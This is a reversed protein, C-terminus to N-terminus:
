DGAHIVCSVHPPDAYSGGSHIFAIQLGGVAENDHFHFFGNGSAFSAGHSVCYNTNAFNNTFNVFYRGTNEDTVSTVNFSDNITCVGGTNTTGDFNVWAKARGEAIQESTSSNGGSTDQINTVKITSM